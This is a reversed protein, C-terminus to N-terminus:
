IISIDYYYIENIGVCEGCFKMGITSLQNRSLADFVDFMM